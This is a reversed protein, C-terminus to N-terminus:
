YAVVENGNCAVVLFKGMNNNGVFAKCIGNGNLTTKVDNCTLKVRTSGSFKTLRQLKIYLFNKKKDLNMHKSSGASIELTNSGARTDDEKRASVKIVSAESKQNLETGGGSGSGEGTENRFKINCKKNPGWCDLQTLDCVTPPAPDTHPHAASATSAMLAMLLFAPIALKTM